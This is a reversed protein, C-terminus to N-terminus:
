WKKLTEEIKMPDYGYPSEWERTDSTALLKGNADIVYLFPYRPAKPYASLACTNNQDTANVHVVVFKRDRMERAAVSQEFTKDLVRCWGCWSGGAILLIKRNTRGAELKAREIELQADAKPDYSAAPPAFPAKRVEEMTPTACEQKKESANVGSREREVIQFELVAKGSQAYPQTLVEISASPYGREAYAKQLLLYSQSLASLRLLDGVRPLIIEDLQKTTFVSSGTWLIESITYRPGTDVDLSVAVHQKGDTSPLSQVAAKATVNMFGEDGLHRTVGDTLQKLWKDSYAEGKLSDALKASEDASLASAGQITVAEIVVTTFAAGRENRTQAAPKTQATAPGVLFALVFCLLVGVRWTKRGNANPM